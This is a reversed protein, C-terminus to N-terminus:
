LALAVQQELTLAEGAGVVLTSYVLPLFQRRHVELGGEWQAEQVQPTAEQVGVERLM